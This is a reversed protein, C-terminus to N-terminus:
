NSLGFQVMYHLVICNQSLLPSRQQAANVCFMLSFVVALWSCSLCVIQFATHEPVIHEGSIDLPLPANSNQHPSFKHNVGACMSGPM